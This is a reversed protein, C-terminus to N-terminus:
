SEKIIESLTTLATSSGVYVKESSTPMSSDWSDAVIEHDLLKCSCKVHATKM